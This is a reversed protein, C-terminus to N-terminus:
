SVSGRSQFNSIAEESFGIEQLIALNHEGLRPAHHRLTTRKGDFRLPQAIGRVTGLEPHDYEFRM